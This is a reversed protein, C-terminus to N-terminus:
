PLSARLRRALRRAGRVAVKGVVGVGVFLVWGILVAWVDVALGTSPDPPAAAVVIVALVAATALLRRTVCEKM